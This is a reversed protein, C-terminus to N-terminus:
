AALKKEMVLAAEEPERYYAPRRGVKCFGYKEYFAIAAHNSERVELFLRKVRRELLGKEASQLLAAAQGKRRSGQEVALNLIEAEDAAQRALLFATVTGSSEAVLSLTSRWAQVEKVEAEPWFVAEPSNGLIASIRAADEPRMTRIRPGASDTKAEAAM